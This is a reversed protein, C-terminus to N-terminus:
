FFFKQISFSTFFFKLIVNSLKELIIARVITDILFILKRLTNLLIELNGIFFITLGNKVSNQMQVLM